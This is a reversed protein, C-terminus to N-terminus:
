YAMVTEKSLRELEDNRLRRCHQAIYDLSTVANNFSGDIFLFIIQPRQKM